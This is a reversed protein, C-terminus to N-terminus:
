LYIEFHKRSSNALINKFDHWYSLIRQLKEKLSDLTVALYNKLTNERSIESDINKFYHWDSDKTTTTARQLSYLEDAIYNRILWNTESCIGGLELKTRIQLYPFLLCLFSKQMNEAINNIIIIIVIILINIIITTTIIILIDISHSLIGNVRLSTM